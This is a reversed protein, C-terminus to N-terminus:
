VPQPVSKAVDRVEPRPLCCVKHAEGDPQCIPTETGRLLSDGVVLVRQKKKPYGSQAAPTTEEQLGQEQTDVTTLAEYKNNTAISSPPRQLPTRSKHTVLTWPAETENTTEVPAHNQLWTAIEM